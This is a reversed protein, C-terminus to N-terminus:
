TLINYDNKIKSFYEHIKNLWVLSNDLFFLFFHKLIKLYKKLLHTQLLNDNKILLSAFFFLYLKLLAYFFLVESVGIPSFRFKFIRHPLGSFKEPIEPSINRLIPLWKSIVCSERPALLPSSVPDDQFHCLIRKLIVHSGRPSLAPDEQLHFMIRKSIVCSGRPSSM